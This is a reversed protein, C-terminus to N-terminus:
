TGQSLSFHRQGKFPHSNRSLRERSSPASKTNVRRLSSEEVWPRLIFPVNEVVRPKCYATRGTESDEGYRRLVSSHSGGSAPSPSPTARASSVNEVGRREALANTGGKKTSASASGLEAGLCRDESLRVSDRGYDRVARSIELNPFICLIHSRLNSQGLFM